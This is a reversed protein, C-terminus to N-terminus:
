LAIFITDGKIEISDEEMFLKLIMLTLTKAPIGAISAKRISLKLIHEEPLHAMKGLVKLNFHFFVKIRSRIDFDSDNVDLKVYKIDELDVLAKNELQVKAINKFESFEDLFIHGQELCGKIFDDINFRTKIGNKCNAKLKEVQTKGGNSTFVIKSANMTINEPSILARFNNTLINTTPNVLSAQEAELNGNNLCVIDIDTSPDGKPDCSAKLRKVQAITDKTGTKVFPAVFFMEHKDFNIQADQVFLQDLTILPNDPSLDTDYTIFSVNAKFKHEEIEVTGNLIEGHNSAHFRNGGFDIDLQTASIKGKTAGSDKQTSINLDSIKIIERKASVNFALAFVIIFAAIYKM